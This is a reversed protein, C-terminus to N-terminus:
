CGIQSEFYRSLPISMVRELSSGDTTALKSPQCSWRGWSAGSLKLSLDESHLGSHSPSLQASHMFSVRVFFFDLRRNDSTKMNENAAPYLSAKANLVKLLLNFM